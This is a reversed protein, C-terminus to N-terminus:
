GYIRSVVLSLIFAAAIGLMIGDRIVEARQERRARDHARRNIDETTMSSHYITLTSSRWRAM